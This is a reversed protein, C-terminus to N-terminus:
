VIPLQTTSPLRLENPLLSQCDSNPALVTYNDYSQRATERETQRPTKRDPKDTGVVGVRRQTGSGGAPVMILMTM